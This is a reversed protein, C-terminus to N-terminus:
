DVFMNAFRVDNKSAKRGMKSPFDLPFVERLWATSFGVLM